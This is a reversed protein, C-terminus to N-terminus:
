AIRDITSMAVPINSNKMMGNVFAPLQRLARVQADFVNQPTCSLLVSCERLSIRELVSLVFVLREFPVLHTVADIVTGALSEYEEDEWGDRGTNDRISALTTIRIAQKIVARKSWSLAWLRHVGLVGFAEELASLLCQEADQHSATLLFALKYLSAREKAFLRCFDASGAHKGDLEVRLVGECNCM